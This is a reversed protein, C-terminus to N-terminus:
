KGSDPPPLGYLTGSAGTDTPGGDAGDTAADKAADGGSASDAAGTDVAGGTDSPAGYAAVSLGTDVAADSTSGDSSSCGAGGVAVASTAFAVLMNRALRRTPM